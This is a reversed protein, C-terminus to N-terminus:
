YLYMHLRFQRVCNRSAAVKLSVKTPCFRLAQLDQTMRGCVALHCCSGCGTQITQNSAAVGLWLETPCFWVAQIDQIM